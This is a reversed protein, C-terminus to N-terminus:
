NKEERWDREERQEEIAAKGKRGTKKEEMKDGMWLTSKRKDKRTGEM